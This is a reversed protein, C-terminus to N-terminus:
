RVARGQTPSPHEASIRRFTFLRHAFWRYLVTVVIVVLQSLLVPWGFVEVLLPLVVFNFALVSLNVLEFRALDRLLHGKVRFVFMRNLGFAVLMAIVHTCALVGLYGIADRMLWLLLAFLGM